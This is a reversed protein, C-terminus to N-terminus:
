GGSAAVFESLYKKEFAEVAAATASADIGWCCALPTEGTWDGQVMLVGEITYASPLRGGLYATLANVTPGGISVTALSRLQDNNLYWLDSCVVVRDPAAGAGLAKLVRERLRYAIPRDFVEAALHAGTVILVQQKTTEFESGFGPFATTM